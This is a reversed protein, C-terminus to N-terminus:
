ENFVLLNCSDPGIKVHVEFRSAYDDCCSGEEVPEHVYASGFQWSASTCFAWAKMQCFADRLMTDRCAPHFCTRRNSHVSPSDVEILHLQLRALTIKVFEGEHSFDSLEWLQRAPYSIGVLFHMLSQSLSQRVRREIITLDLANPWSITGAYFCFQHGESVLFLM